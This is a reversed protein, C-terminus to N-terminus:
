LRYENTRNSPPAAAATTCQQGITSKADTGFRANITKFRVVSLLIEIPWFLKLLHAVNAIYAYFIHVAITFHHPALPSIRDVQCMTCLVHLSLWGVVPYMVVAFYIFWSGHVMGHYKTRVLQTYQMCTAYRFRDTHSMSWAWAWGTPVAIFGTLNFILWGYSSWYCKRFM